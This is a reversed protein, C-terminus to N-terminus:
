TSRKRHDLIARVAELKASLDKNENIHGAVEIVKLMTAATALDLTAESVGDYLAQLAAGISEAQALDLPPLALSLTRPDERPSATGARYKLFLEASRYDADDLARRRM